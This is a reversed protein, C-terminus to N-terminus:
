TAGSLPRANRELACQALLGQGQASNVGTPQLCGTLCMKAAGLALGGRPTHISSNAEPLPIHM